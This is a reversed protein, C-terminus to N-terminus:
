KKSVCYLMDLSDQSTKYLLKSYWIPLYKKPMWYLISILSERLWEGSSPYLSQLASPQKATLSSYFHQQRQRDFKASHGAGTPKVETRVARVCNYYNEKRTGEPTYITCKNLKIYYSVVYFPNSSRPCVTSFFFAIELCKVENKICNEGRENGRKIRNRFM